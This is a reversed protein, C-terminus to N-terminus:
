FDQQISSASERYNRKAALGFYKTDTFAVWHAQDLCKMWVICLIWSIWFCIQKSFFFIFATM